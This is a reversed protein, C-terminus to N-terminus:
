VTFIFFRMSFVATGGPGEAGDGKNGNQEHREINHVTIEMVKIVMRRM